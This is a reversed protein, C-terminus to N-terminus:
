SVNAELILFRPVGVPPIGGVAQAAWAVLVEMKASLFILHIKQRTFPSPNSGVRGTVYLKYCVFIILKETRRKQNGV